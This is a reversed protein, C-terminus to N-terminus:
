KKIFDLFQINDARLFVKSKRGEDWDTSKLKAQILVLSGADIKNYCLRALGGYAEVDVFTASDGERVKGNGNIAIRFNVVDDGSETKTLVPSDALNAIYRGENLNLMALFLVGKSPHIRNSVYM